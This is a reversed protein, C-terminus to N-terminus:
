KFDASTEHLRRGLDVLHRIQAALLRASPEAYNETIYDWPMGVAWLREYCSLLVLPQNEANKFTVTYHLQGLTMGFDVYITLTGDEHPGVFKTTGGPRKEHEVDFAETIATKVLKRLLPAKAPKYNDIAPLLDARPQFHLDTLKDRWSPHYGSPHRLTPEASMMKVDTYRTGGKGGLGQRLECMRALAPPVDMTGRANLKLAAPPLFAYAAADAMEDLLSERDATTLREFHDLFWIIDTQPVPRLHPFGAAVEAAFEARLFKSIIPHRDAVAIELPRIALAEAWVSTPLSSQQGEGFELM